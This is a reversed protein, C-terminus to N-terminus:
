ANVDHFRLDEGLHRRLLRHVPRVVHEGPEQLAAGRDVAVHGVAVPLVDARELGVELGLGVHEVALDLDVDGPELERRARPHPPSPPSTSGSASSFPGTQMPSYAFISAPALRRSYLTIPALTTTLSPAKMWRATTCLRTNTPWPEVSRPQTTPLFVSTIRRARISSVATTPSSHTTSGSAYM